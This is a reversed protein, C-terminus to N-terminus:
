PSSMVILPLHPKSLSIFISAYFQLWQLECTPSAITRYKSETSSRSITAQEKSNWSVLSRQPTYASIREVQISCDLVLYSSM